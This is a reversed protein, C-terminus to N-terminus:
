WDVPLPRAVMPVQPLELLLPQLLWLPQVLVFYQSPDVQWSMGVPRHLATESQSPYLLLADHTM